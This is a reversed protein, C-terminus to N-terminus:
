DAVAASIQEAKKANRKFSSHTGREIADIQAARYTSRTGNLKGATLHIGVADRFDVLAKSLAARTCGAERAIEALTSGFKCNFVPDLYVALSAARAGALTLNDGGLVWELILSFVAGMDSFSVTDEEISEGDCNHYISEWDPQGIRELRGDSTVGLERIGDSALM